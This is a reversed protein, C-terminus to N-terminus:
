RFMRWNYGLVGTPENPDATPTATPTPSATPPATPSATPTATPTPSTTPTPSETPTATPTPTPGPTGGEVEYAEGIFLPTGDQVGDTYTGDGRPGASEPAAALDAASWSAQMFHTMFMDGKSPLTWNEPEGPGGQTSHFIDASTGKGLSSGPDTYYNELPADCAGSGAYDEEYQCSEAWSDLIYTQDDHQSWAKGQYNINTGAGLDGSVCMEIRCWGKSTWCDEFTLINEAAHLPLNGYGSHNDQNTIVMDEYPMDVPPGHCGGAAKEQVQNQTSGFQFQILKNREGYCAASSGSGTFEEEVTFYYRICMRKINSPYDDPHQRGYQYNNGGGAGYLTNNATTSIVGDKDVHVAHM